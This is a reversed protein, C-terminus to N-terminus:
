TFLPSLLNLSLSYVDNSQKDRFYIKGGVASQFEYDEPYKDIHSIIDDTIRNRNIADRKLKEVNNM